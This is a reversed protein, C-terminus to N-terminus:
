ARIVLKNSRVVRKKNTKTKYIVKARPLEFNGFISLKSKMRYTILRDEQPDLEDFDWRVVTYGQSEHKMIKSPRVTGIDFDQNINAMNPVKDLVKIHSLPQNSINKVNLMVKVESIVGKHLEINKAMKTIQVPSRFMYYAVICGAIIILLYLIMRYNHIVRITVEETPELTLDWSYYRIGEDRVVSYDRPRASLFVFKWLPAVARITETKKTNGINKFTMQKEKKFLTTVLEEKKDFKATYDIIEFEFRDANFVYPGTNAKIRLVDKEPPHLPDLNTEFTLTKEEEPGLSTLQYGNITNSEIHVELNSINKINYNKLVINLDDQDRPDVEKPFDVSIGINPLYEKEADALSLIYVPLNFKITSGTTKSKVAIYVNRYGKGIEKDPSFYAKTTYSDKAPVSFGSLYDPFPDTYYIKWQTVDGFTLQFDHKKELHNDVKITFKATGYITIKDNVANIEATFGNATEKIAFVSSSFVIILLLSITWLIQKDKM